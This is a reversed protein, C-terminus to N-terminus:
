ARAARHDFQDAGVPQCFARGGAGKFLVAALAPNTEWAALQPRLLDIM